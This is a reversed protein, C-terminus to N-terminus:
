NYQIWIGFHRKAWSGLLTMECKLLHLKCTLRISGKWDWLPYLKIKVAFASNLKLIIFLNVINTCFMMM